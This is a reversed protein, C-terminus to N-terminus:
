FRNIICGNVFVNNCDSSRRRRQYFLARIRRPTSSHLFLSYRSLSFCLGDSLCLFDAVELISWNKQSTFLTWPMTGISHPVRLSYVENHYDQAFRYGEGGFIVAEDGMLVMSHKYRPPPISKPQLLHWSKSGALNFSNVSAPSVSMLPGRITSVSAIRSASREGLFCFYKGMRYLRLHGELILDQKRFELGAIRTQMTLFFNHMEVLTLSGYIM